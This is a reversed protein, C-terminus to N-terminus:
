PEASLEAKLLRLCHRDILVLNDKKYAKVADRFRKKILKELVAEDLTTPGLAMRLADLVCAVHDFGNRALLTHRQHDVLSPLGFDAKKMEHLARRELSEATRRYKPCREALARLGNTLLEGDVNCRARLQPAVEHARRNATAFTVETIM